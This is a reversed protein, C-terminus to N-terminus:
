DTHSYPHMIINLLRVKRKLVLFGLVITVVTPVDLSAFLRRFSFDLVPLNKLAPLGLVMPSAIAPLPITICQRGSKPAPVTLLLVVILTLFTLHSLFQRFAFWFPYRSILCITKNEFTIMEDFGTLLMDDDQSPSEGNRIEEFGVM